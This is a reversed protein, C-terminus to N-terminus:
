AKGEATVSWTVAPSDCNGQLVPTAVGEDLEVNVTTTKDFAIGDKLQPRFTLSNNSYQVSDKAVDISYFVAKSTMNRLRIFASQKPKMIQPFILPM